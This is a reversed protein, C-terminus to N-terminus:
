ELHQFEGSVLSDDVHTVVRLDRVRHICVGLTRRCEEFGLRAMDSKVVRQWAVPADRTGYLTNNLRGIFRRELVTERPRCPQDGGLRFNITRSMLLAKKCPRAVLVTYTSSGSSSAPPPFNMPLNFLVRYPVLSAGTAHCRTTLLSMARRPKSSNRLVKPTYINVPDTVKTHDSM